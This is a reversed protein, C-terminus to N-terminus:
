NNVSHHVPPTDKGIAAFCYGNARGYEIIQRVAEITTKKNNTDHCLIINNEGKKLEHIASQALKDSDINNGSADTSDVNWDYYEWNPDDNVRQTLRTMLGSSYKRSVTNSGGGPFRLCFANYGTDALVKQRLQEIGDLYANDDAYCKAYDHDWAHMGITHGDAVERQLIPLVEESYNLIFFTVPVENEELLDLLEPTTETSPGDDFTLYIVSYPDVEAPRSLQSISATSKSVVGKSPTQASSEGPQPRSVEVAQSAAVPIVGGSSLQGRIFRVLLVALVLVVAAGGLRLLMQRRLARYRREAQRASERKRNRSRSEM